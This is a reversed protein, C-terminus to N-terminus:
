TTCQEFGSGDTRANGEDGLLKWLHRLLFGREGREEELFQAILRGITM